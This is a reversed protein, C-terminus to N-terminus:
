FLWPAHRVPVMRCAYCASLYTRNTPITNPVNFAQIEQSFARWDSANRPGEAAIGIGSTSDFRAEPGNPLNYLNVVWFGSAPQGAQFYANKVQMEHASFRESGISGSSIAGGCQAQRYRDSTGTHLFEPSVNGILFLDPDDPTFVSAVTVYSAAPASGGGSFGSHIEVYDSAVVSFSDTTDQGNRASGSITVQQTAQLAGNKVWQLVRSQRGVGPATSLRVYTDSITGPVPIRLRVPAQTSAAGGIAGTIPLYQTSTTSLQTTDTLSGVITQGPTTPEWLYAYRLYAAAPTGTSDCAVIVLDGAAVAESDSDEGQTDAAGFAISHAGAGAIRTGVTRTAGAGPADSLWARFEKINGAAPWRMVFFNNGIIRGGFVPMRELGTGLQDTTSGYIAQLTM